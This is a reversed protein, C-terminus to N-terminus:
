KSGIALDKFIEACLEIEKIDVWEDVSHAQELNGPGFCISNQNNLMLSVVAADTYAVYGGQKPEKNMIRRYSEEILKIIGADEPTEVPPREMGLNKVEVRAGPVKLIARESAKKILINADKHDMPPVVRFDVEARAKDPVVNTKNGGEMKGISLLSKHLLPHDFPLANVASKLECIIEAMAHNADVGREAHGGHSSKGYTNIEYWMVGRHARIVELRTPEPAIVMTSDDILGSDILAKIGLMGPGEEDVSVVVTFDGPLNGAKHAEKLAYLSAAVGSKMDSAGRGYMKGEVIEAKFPDHSWGEGAPVTDCHAVLVIPPRKGTGKVKVILNSRGHSVQQLEYSIGDESLWKAVFNIVKEETNIPNESSIGVLKATLEVAPHLCSM